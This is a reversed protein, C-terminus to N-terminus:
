IKKRYENLKIKHEKFNKSFIHKKELINYFYFLFDSKPNELVIKVTEPGVYSILDPPLGYIYYTNFPHQIKLDTLTLKRNLKFKGETLSFIVTADIQLRMNNKLRNFIVSAILKKDDINNAEKEILSSIILIEKETYLNLLENNQFKDFFKKKDLHM